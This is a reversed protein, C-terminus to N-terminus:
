GRSKASMPASVVKGSNEIVVPEADEDHETTEALRKVYARAEAIAEAPIEVNEPVAERLQEPSLGMLLEKYSSFYTPRASRTKESHQALVAKGCQLQRQSGFGTTPLYKMSDVIHKWDMISDHKRELMFTMEWPPDIVEGTWIATIKRNGVWACVPHTWIRDPLMGIPKGNRTISVLTPWVGVGHKFLELGSKIKWTYGAQQLCERVAARVSRGELCINGNPGRIFANIQSKVADVIAENTRNGNEDSQIVPPVTKVALDELFRKYAEESILGKNKAALLRMLMIDLSPTCPGALTTLGEVKFLMREYPDKLVSGHMVFDCGYQHVAVGEDTFVYDSCCRRAEAAHAARGKLKEPEDPDTRSEDGEEGEFEIKIKKAM